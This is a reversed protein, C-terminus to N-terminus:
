LYGLLFFYLQVSVGPSFLITECIGWSFFSYSYLYGLLFFFLKVSVGPSFFYGYLYRLCFLITTHPPLPSYFPKWSTALIVEWPLKGVVKRIFIIFANLPKSSYYYHHNNELAIEGSLVYGKWIFFQTSMSNPFVLLNFSSCMISFWVQFLCQTMLGLCLMFVILMQLFWYCFFANCLCVANSLAAFMLYAHM